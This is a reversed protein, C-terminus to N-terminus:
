TAVGAECTLQLEMRRGDPDVAPGRINLIVETGGDQVWVLRDDPTIQVSLSDQRLWVNYVVSGELRAALVGDRAQSAPRIKAPLLRGDFLAAFTGEKNGYGDSVTQRREARVRDRLAGAQM